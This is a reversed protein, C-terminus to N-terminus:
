TKATEFFPVEQSGANLIEESVYSALTENSVDTFNQLVFAIQRIYAALLKYYAESAPTSKFEKMHKELRYIFVPIVEYNKSLYLGVICNVFSVLTFNTKAMRYSQEPVVDSNNLILHFEKIRSRAEKGGPKSIDMQASEKLKVALEAASKLNHNQPISKRLLVM